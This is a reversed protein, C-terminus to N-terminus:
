TFLVDIGDEDKSLTETAESSPEEGIIKVMNEKKTAREVRSAARDARSLVARSVLSNM